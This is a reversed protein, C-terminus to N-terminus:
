VQLTFHNPQGRRWHVEATTTRGNPLEATVRHAGFFARVKFRGRHDTPGEARTWWEGKILKLLRDYAPKPSMDARVLGAPAGQWAHYDSFDWWTLAEVAPHSFLLRYFNVTKEAQELEGDPTTVAWGGGGANRPGSVITTETFHLPLGLKSYTECVEWAKHLPWAGGHMHSQIGVADFLFKGHSRLQRLLRYYNPDLRYDNVLLTAEANAARALKLPESLYHVPGLSLGLEAMKTKNAKDPLHTAENVVDWIDIPRKFRSVIDSVRADSLRQIEELNDPLWSPNGAPHDWVLPHGKCRIGHAQAWAAARDTYEYNPRGREAEYSAWYFGLTCYNLLAAFRSRYQEEREPEGCREFMFFNCGFLFDHRVQEVTVETNRLPRGRDDRVEVWGDGMRHKEIRAKAQSLLEDDSRKEKHAEGAWAPSALLLASASLGSRLFARRNM